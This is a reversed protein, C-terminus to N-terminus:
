AKTWPTGKFKNSNWAPQAKEDGKETGKCCSRQNSSDSLIQIQCLLCDSSGIHCGNCAGNKRTKHKSGEGVSKAWSIGLYSSDLRGCLAFCICTVVHQNAIPIKTVSKWMPCCDLVPWVYDSDIKQLYRALSWLNDACGESVATHLIQVIESQSVTNMNNCAKRRYRVAAATNPIGRTLELVAKM